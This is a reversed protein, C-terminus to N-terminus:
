ARFEDVLAPRPPACTRFPRPLTPSRAGVLREREKEGEKETEREKQTKTRTAADKMSNKRPINLDKNSTPTVPPDEKVSVLYWTKSVQRM